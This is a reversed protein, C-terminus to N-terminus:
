TRIRALSIAESLNIGASERRRLDGPALGLALYVLPTDFRHDLDYRNRSELEM